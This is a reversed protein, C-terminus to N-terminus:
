FPLDDEDDQYGQEGGTAAPAQATSAAPARSAQPPGPREAAATAPAEAVTTSGARVPQGDAGRQMGLMLWRGVLVETTWHKVGEKEWERTRLAGELWVQQGKKCYRCLNEASKGFLVLKHWEVHDTWDGNRKMRENTALTVNAVAVGSRAYRLEPDRGLHGILEVRNLGAAM